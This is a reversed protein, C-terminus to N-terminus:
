GCRHEQLSHPPCQYFFTAKPARASSPLGIFIRNMKRIVGESNCIVVAHDITDLFATELIMKGEGSVSMENLATFVFVATM